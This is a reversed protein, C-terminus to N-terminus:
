RKTIRGRFKRLTSGNGNRIEIGCRWRFRDERKGPSYIHAVATSLFVVRKTKIRRWRWYIEQRETPKLDHLVILPRSFFGVVSRCWWALAKTALLVCSPPVGMAESWLVSEAWGKPDDKAGIWWWSGRWILLYISLSSRSAEVSRVLWCRALQRERASDAKAMISSQDGGLTPRTPSLNALASALIMPSIDAM